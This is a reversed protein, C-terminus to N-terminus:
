SVGRKRNIGETEKIGDIKKNERKKNQRKKNQRKLKNM